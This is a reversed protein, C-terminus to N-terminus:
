SAKVGRYDTYESSTCRAQEASTNKPTILLRTGLYSHPHTQHQWLATPTRLMKPSSAPRETAAGTRNCFREQQTGAICGAPSCSEPEPGAHQHGAMGRADPGAPAAKGIAPVQLGTKQGSCEPAEHMGQMLWKLPLSVM